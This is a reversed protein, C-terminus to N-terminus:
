GRWQSTETGGSTKTKLNNDLCCYATCFHSPIRVRNKLSRRGPVVGTVIYASNPLCNKVLIDAVAEETVRWQGRNFSKDQPAANTLTFTADSCSQSTAHYVPALHGKDYGHTKTGSYDKNVAQHPLSPVNGDPGM